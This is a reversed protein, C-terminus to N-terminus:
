SLNSVEQLYKFFEGPLKDQKSYNCKQCAIVINEPGNSGGKSVPVYHDVTHNVTVDCGCYFCAGGQEQLKNLVDQATHKGTSGRLRARRNRTHAKMKEPNNRAYLRNKERLKELADKDAVLAAHYKRLYQKKAAVFEPDLSRARHYASRRAKIDERQRYEAHQKLRKEKHKQYGAADSIRKKERYAADTAMREVRARNIQDAKESYRKSSKEKTCAKCPSMYRGDSRQYFYGASAPYETKCGSCTTM